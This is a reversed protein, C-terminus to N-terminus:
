QKVLASLALFFEEPEKGYAYRTRYIFLIASKVGRPAIHVIYCWKQKQDEWAFKKINDMFYLVLVICQLVLVSLM